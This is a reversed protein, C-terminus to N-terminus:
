VILPDPLDGLFALTLYKSFKPNFCIGCLLENDIVTGPTISAQSVDNFFYPFFFSFSTKSSEM